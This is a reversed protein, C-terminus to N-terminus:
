SKLETPIFGIVPRQPSVANVPLLDIQLTSKKWSFLTICDRKGMTGPQAYVDGPASLELDNVDPAFPGEVRLDSNGIQACFAYELMWSTLGFEGRTLGDIIGQASVKLPESPIYVPFAIFSGKPQMEKLQDLAAETRPDSWLREYLIKEDVAYPNNSEGHAGVILHNAYGVDSKSLVKTLTKSGSRFHRCVEKEALHKGNMHAVSVAIRGPTWYTKRLLRRRPIVIIHRFKEPVNMKIALNECGSCDINTYHDQIYELTPQMDASRIGASRLVSTLNLAQGVASRHAYWLNSRTALSDSTTTDM